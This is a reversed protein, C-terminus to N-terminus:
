TPEGARSASDGRADVSFRPRDASGITQRASPNARGIMTRGIRMAAEDHDNWGCPERSAFVMKRDPEVVEITQRPRQEFLDAEDDLLVTRPQRAARRALANQDRPSPYFSTPSIWHGLCRPGRGCRAVPDEAHKSHRVKSRRSSAM